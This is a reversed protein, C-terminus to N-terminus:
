KALETKMEESVNWLKGNEEEWEARVEKCDFVMLCFSHKDTGRYLVVERNYSSGWVGVELHDGMVNLFSCGTGSMLQNVEVGANRCGAM